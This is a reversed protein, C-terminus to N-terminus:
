DQTASINPISPWLGAKGGETMALVVHYMLRTLAEAWLTQGELDLRNIYSPRQEFWQDFMLCMLNRAREGAQADGM